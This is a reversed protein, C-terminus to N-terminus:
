RARRCKGTEWRVGHCFREKGLNTDDRKYKSGFSPRKAVPLEQGDVLVLCKEGEKAGSKTPISTHIKRQWIKTPADRNVHSATMGQALTAPCLGVGERHVFQWRVGVDCLRRCRYPTGRCRRAIHERCRASAVRCGSSGGRVWRGNRGNAPRLGM